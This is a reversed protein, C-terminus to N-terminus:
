IMRKNLLRKMLERSSVTCFGLEKLHYMFGKIIQGRKLEDDEDVLDM